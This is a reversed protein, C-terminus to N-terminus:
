SNPLLKHDRGEAPHWGDPGLSLHLSKGPLTCLHAGAAVEIWHTPPLEGPRCYNWVFPSLVDWASVDCNRGPLWSLQALKDDIDSPQGGGRYGWPWADGDGPQRGGGRGRSFGWRPGGCSATHGQCLFWYARPSSTVIITVLLMSLFLLRQSPFSNVCPVTSQTQYFNHIM